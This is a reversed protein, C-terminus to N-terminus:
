LDWSQFDLLLAHAPGYEKQNGRYLFGERGGRLRQHNAPLRAHRPKYSCGVWSQRWPWMVEEKHNRDRHRFTRRRILVAARNSRILVGVKSLNSKM